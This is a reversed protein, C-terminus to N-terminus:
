RTPPKKEKPLSMLLTYHSLNIYTCALQQLLAASSEEGLRSQALPIPSWKKLACIGMMHVWYGANKFDKERQSLEWLRCSIIDEEALGEEQLRRIEAVIVEIAEYVLEPTSCFNVRYHSLNDLPFLPNCWSVGVRYSMGRDQRLSCNLRQELLFALTKLPYISDVSVEKELPFSLRVQANKRDERIVRRKIGKPFEPLTLASQQIPSTSPIHISPITALYHKSLSLVKEPSISGALGLYFSSPEQFNIHYFDKFQEFCLLDLSSRGFPFLLPSHNSNLLQSESEFDLVGTYQMQNVRGWAEGLTRSGGQMECRKSTFFLYLLQFLSEVEDKKCKGEIERLFPYLHTRIKMSHGPFLWEQECPSLGAMKWEIALGPLLPLTSWHEPSASAFGGSAYAKFAFFPEVSPAYYYSLYMGNSLEWNYVEGGWGGKECSIKDICGEENLYSLRNELQYFPYFSPGVDMFMGLMYARRLSRKTPIKAYERKPVQLWIVTDELNSFLHYRGWSDVEHLTIKEILEISEKLLLKKDVLPQSYISAYAYSDAWVKNVREDEQCCLEQELLVKIRKQARLLEELMFGHLCASKTESVLIELDSTLSELPGKSTLQFLELSLAPRYFQSKVEFLALEREEILKQFRFNLMEHLIRDILQARINSTSVGSDLPNSVQRHSLPHKFGVRLEASFLDPQTEIVVQPAVQSPVEELKLLPAESDQPIKEFYTRIFKELQEKEYGGVVILSTLRPQYWRKYFTRVQSATCEKIVSSLGLPPRQAYLSHKFLAEQWSSQSSCALCQRELIENSVVKREKELSSSSLEARFLIESLWDLAQIVHEPETSPLDIKYLTYDFHTEANIHDGWYMGLNAMWSNVEERSYSETGQLCLHELIHALGQEGEEEQLSGARIILRLSLSNTDTSRIYYSLGNDLRKALVEKDVAVKKPLTEGKVRNWLDQLFSFSSPPAGEVSLSSLLLYVSLYLSFFRLYLMAIWNASTNTENPTRLKFIITTNMKQLSIIFVLSFSITLLKRRPNLCGSLYLEYNLSFNHTYVILEDFIGGEPLTGEDPFAQSSGLSCVFGCVLVESGVVSRALLASTLLVVLSGLVKKTKPFWLTLYSSSSSAPIKSRSLIEGLWSFM